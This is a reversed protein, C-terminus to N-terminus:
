RKIGRKKKNNMEKRPRDGRGKDIGVRDHGVLGEGKWVM